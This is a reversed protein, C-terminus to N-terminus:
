RQAQVAIIFVVLSVVAIIVKPTARPRALYALRRSLPLRVEAPYVQEGRHTSCLAVPVQPPHVLPLIGASPLDAVAALLRVHVKRDQGGRGSREPPAQEM